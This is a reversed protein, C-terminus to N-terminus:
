RKDNASKGVPSPHPHHVTHGHRHRLLERAAQWNELDRNPTKGSELWLRHAEHAIEAETPEHHGPHPLTKM